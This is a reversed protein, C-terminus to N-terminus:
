RNQCLTHRSLPAELASFPFRACQLPASLITASRWLQHPSPLSPFFRNACPFLKRWKGCVCLIRLFFLCLFPKLLCPLLSGQFLVEWVRAWVQFSFWFALVGIFKARECSLFRFKSSLCGSKRFDVAAIEVCTVSNKELGRTGLEM